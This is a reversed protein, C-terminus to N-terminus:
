NTIDAEDWGEEAPSPAVVDTYIGMDMPSPVLNNKLEDYKLYFILTSVYSGV